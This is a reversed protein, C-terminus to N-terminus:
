GMSPPLSGQPSTRSSTWRVRRLPPADLRDIRPSAASVEAAIALPTRGLADLAGCALPNGEALAAVVAGSCGFLCGLHLPTAALAGGAVALSAVPFWKPEGAEMLDKGDCSRRLSCTGMSYGKGMEIVRHVFGQLLSGDIAVVLAGETVKGEGPRAAFSSDAALLLLSEPLARLLPAVAAPTVKAGRSLLTVLM